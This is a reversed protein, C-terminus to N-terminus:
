RHCTQLHSTRLLALESLLFCGVVVTFYEYLQQLCTAAHNFRCQKTPANQNSRWARLVCHLDYFILDAIYLGDSNFYLIEVMGLDLLVWENDRALLVM